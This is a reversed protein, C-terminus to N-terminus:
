DPNRERWAIQVADVDRLFMRASALIRSSFRRARDRRQAIRLESGLRGIDQPDCIAAERGIDASSAYDADGSASM